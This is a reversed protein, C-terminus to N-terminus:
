VLYGNQRLINLQGKILVEDANQYTVVGFGLADLAQLYPSKLGESCVLTIRGRKDEAIGQLEHGILLGSLYQYNECANIKKFLGNTRVRFISNLLNSVNGQMVGNIFFSNKTMQGTDEKKVSHALISKNALLDFVEGTMFTNIHQAMGYKVAIHKSHTGPFILLQETDDCPLTCGVLMTEEGRIVDVASSAGSIMIIEFQQD